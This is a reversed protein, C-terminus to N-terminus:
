DGTFIQRSETKTTVHHSHLKANDRTFFERFFQAKLGPDRHYTDVTVSPAGGDNRMLADIGCNNRRCFDVLMTMPIVGESRWGNPNSLKGQDNMERLQKARKLVPDMDQTHVRRHQGDESAFRTKIGLNERLPKWDAM